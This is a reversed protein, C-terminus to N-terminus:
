YRPSYFVNLPTKDFWSFTKCIKEKKLIHMVGIKKEKDFLFFFEYGEPIEKKREIIEPPYFEEIIKSCNEYFCEELVVYCGECAYMSQNNEDPLDIRILSKIQIRTQASIRSTLLFSFLLFIILNKM